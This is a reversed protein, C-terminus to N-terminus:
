PFKHINRNSFMRTKVLLNKSIASNVVRVGNDNSIEQLNENGITPKFISERGVNANFDRLLTKM